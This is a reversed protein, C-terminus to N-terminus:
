FGYPTVHGRPIFTIVKCGLRERLRQREQEIVHPFFDDIHAEGALVQRQLEHREHSKTRTAQWAQLTLIERVSWLLPDDSIPPPLQGTRVYYLVRAETAHCATAVEEISLVAGSDHLAVTIKDPARGFIRALKQHSVAM